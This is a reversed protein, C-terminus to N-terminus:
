EKGGLAGALGSKQFKMKLGLPTGDPRKATLTLETIQIRHYDFPQGYGSIFRDLPADLRGGDAAISPVRAQFYRNVWIEVNTWEDKTTNLVTLKNRDLQLPEPPPQSCRSAAVSLLAVALVRRVGDRM